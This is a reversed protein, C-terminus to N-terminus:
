SVKHIECKKQSFARKESQQKNQHIANSSFIIAQEYQQETPHSPLTISLPTIHFDIIM